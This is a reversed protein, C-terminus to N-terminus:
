AAITTRYFRSDARSLRDEYVIILTKAAILTGHYYDYLVSSFNGGTTVSANYLFGMYLHTKYESATVSGVSLFDLVSKKYYALASVFDFNYRGAVFADFSSANTIYYDVCYSTLWSFLPEQDQVTLLDKAVDSFTSPYEARLPGIAQLFYWVYDRADDNTFLFANHCAGATLKSWLSKMEANVFSADRFAIFDSDSSLSDVVAFYRSMMDKKSIFYCSDSVYSIKMPYSMFLSDAAPQSSLFLNKKVVDMMAESKLLSTKITDSISRLTSSHFLSTDDAFGLITTYTLSDAPINQYLDNLFIRNEAVAAIIDKASDASEQTAKAIADYLAKKFKQRSSLETANESSLSYSVSDPAFLDCKRFFSDYKATEM